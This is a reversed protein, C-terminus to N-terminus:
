RIPTTAASPTATEPEKIIIKPNQPLQPLTLIRSAVLLEPNKKDPFGTVTIKDGIALKSFGYKSIGEEKTYISITSLTEVDIATEKQDESIITLTFNKKDINAIRGSIYSPVTFGNIFRALIRQSQKNYLGLISIKTGKTLDSLGFSNKATPSAFKTIEDVDIFRTKNTQDIITIQNGTTEKITGIIGRKEVLNLEAVRSAIREKLQNIQENLKEGMAASSTASEPASKAPTPSSAFVSTQTFSYFLTLTIAISLLKKQM